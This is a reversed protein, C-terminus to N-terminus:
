DLAEPNSLSHSSGLINNKESNPLAIDEWSGFYFKRFKMKQGKYKYIERTDKLM